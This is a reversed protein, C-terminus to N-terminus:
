PKVEESLVGIESLEKLILLARAHQAAKNGCCAGADYLNEEVVGVARGHLEIGQERWFAVNQSRAM